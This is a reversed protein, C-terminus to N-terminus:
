DINATEAAVDPRPKELLELFEDTHDIRDFLEKLPEPAFMNNRDFVARADDTLYYYRRPEGPSQDPADAYAVVGAERLKTLRKSIKSKSFPPNLLAFEKPSVLGSPHAVIDAVLSACAEDDVASIMTVTQEVAPSTDDRQMALLYFETESLIETFLFRVFLVM